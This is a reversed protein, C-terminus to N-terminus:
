NKKIAPHKKLYVIKLIPNDDLKLDTVISKLKNKMEPYIAISKLLLEESNKKKFEVADDEGIWIDGTRNTWYPFFNAGGDIDNIIGYNYADTVMSRSLGTIKDYEFIFYDNMNSGRFYAKTSIEFITSFTIVKNSSETQKYYLDELSQKHPLSGWNFIFGPLISNKDIEYITDGVPSLVLRNDFFTFTPPASIIRTVEDKSVKVNRLPHEIVKIPKGELDFLGAICPTANLIDKDMFAGNFWFTFLFVSDSINAFDFLNRSYSINKKEIYDGNPKYSLYDYMMSRLIVIKDNSPTTSYVSGRLYEQPGRGINGFSNLFNGSLDFRMVLNDSNIYIDNDAMQLRRFSGILVDKNKSLVIYKISDAIDSLKLQKSNKLGETMNIIHPYPKVLEFDSKINTRQNTCSVLILMYLISIRTKAKMDLIM